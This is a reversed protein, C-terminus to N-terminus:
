RYFRDLAEVVQDLRYHTEVREWNRRGLRQRREPDQVLEEIACAIAEPDGPPILIGDPLMEPLAGVASAIVPLGAAMAELVANPMGEAHSPLLFVDAEELLRRRKAPEVPGTLEVQGDLGLEAARRRVAAGDGRGSTQDPGALVFRVPRNRLLVAAELIEFHGKHRSLTGITVVRLRGDTRRTAIRELPEVGNPVVHIPRDRVLDGLVRRWHDSLVLIESGMRLGQRVAWRGATGHGRYWEEFEGSHIQLLVRRGALRGVAAYAASEWFNIGSSSKVHVVRPPRRLVAAAYRMLRRRRRDWLRIRYRRALDSRLIMAVGTEVGGTPVPGPAPGVLLVEPRREALLRHYMEVVPRQQSEWTRCRAVWERASRGLREREAPSELLSALRRALDGADGARFLVGTVADQILERHGGCDSALVAKGRAMAELPKLPTVADTLRTSRRPLVVMAMENYYRGVEEHGVRGPFRAEVGLRRAQAELGARAPGDGVILVQVGRLKAAAELLLDLGEYGVLTGVFGVKRGGSGPQHEEVDVGNGAVTINGAPVGRRRLEEALGDCLVTVQDALRCALDDLRGLGWQVAPGLGPMGEEVLSRMEYVVPIGLRRGAVAAALGCFFLNHAHLIEARELRAAEIIRRVFSGWQALKGARERWTKDVALFRSPDTGDWCRYHAVGDLHEVGRAQGSDASAQSPGSVVAAPVGLRRQARVVYRTRVAAGTVDPWSNYVVHLVKM